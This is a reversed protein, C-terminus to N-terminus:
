VHARGIQSSLGNTKIQQDVVYKGDPLTYTRTISGSATTAKFTLQQAPTEDVTVTSKEGVFYFQNLSMPGKNTQIQYDISASQEDMLILPQKAWTKYNKLEVSKIEGGKSSFTIKVLENELVVSEEKGEVLSSFEGFQQQNQLNKVSDPLAPTSPEATQKSASDDQVETSTTSQEDTVPEPSSFFFSYILLVAAFLILGTAQNRDM